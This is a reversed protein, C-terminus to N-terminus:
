TMGWVTLQAINRTSDNYYGGIVIEAKGDGEVDDTSVSNIMTNSIWYWSQLGTLQYHLELEM